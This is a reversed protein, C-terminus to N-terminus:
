LMRAAQFTMIIVTLGHMDYEGQASVQVHVCMMCTCVGVAVRLCARVITRLYLRVCGHVCMNVCKLGCGCALVCVHVSAVHMIVIIRVCM